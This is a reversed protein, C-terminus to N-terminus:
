IFNELEFGATNGTRLSIKHILRISKVIIIYWNYVYVTATKVQKVQISLDLCMLLCNEKQTIHVPILLMQSPLVWTLIYM